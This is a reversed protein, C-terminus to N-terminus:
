NGTIALHNKGRSAIIACQISDGNRQTHHRDFAPLRAYAYSVPPLQGEWIRSFFYKEPLDHLIHATSINKSSSLVPV